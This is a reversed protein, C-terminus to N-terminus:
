LHMNSFHTLSTYMEESFSFCRWREKRNLSFKMTQSIHQNIPKSNVFLRSACVCRSMSISVCRFVHSCYPLWVWFMAFMSVFHCDYVFCPLCHSLTAFMSVSHCDYDFRPLCQWLPLTVIMSLVYCVHLCQPLWVWFMAVTHCDFDFCPLCRWQAAVM